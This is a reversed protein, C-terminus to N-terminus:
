KYMTVEKNRYFCLSADEYLRVIREDSKKDLDAIDLPEGYLFRKLDDLQSVQPINYGNEGGCRDAMSDFFVWSEDNHTGCKVFSVYHSTNICVVAFLEMTVKQEETSHHDSPPLSPPAPHHLRKPHNHVSKWCSPCLYAYVNNWGFQCACERCFSNAVAGCIVCSQIADSLIRTINLTPNIIIRKYLKQMGFRPMQLVMVSPIEALQLNASMFSYELLYQISPLPNRVDREAFIQYLHSTEERGNGSRLKVFPDIKLVKEFLLVVFEEPDKEENLFGGIDGLDNLCKRLEMVSQHHVYGNQRLPNVIQEKLIRQVRDYELIDDRRKKRHLAVDFVHAFAYMAFITADMYCSNHHGQVGKKRGVYKPELKTAPLLCGHVSEIEAAVYSPSLPYPVSNFREDPRCTSLKCFFGRGHQCVFFRERQFTGDTGGEIPNELELGALKYPINTPYGTWRIVGYHAKSSIVIQAMSGVQLSSSRDESPYVTPSQQTANYSKEGYNDPQRPLSSYASSRYRESNSTSNVDTLYNTNQNLDKHLVRAPASKHRLRESYLDKTKEEFSEEPYVSVNPASHQRKRDTSNVNLYNSDPNLSKLINKQDTHKFTNTADRINSVPNGSSLVKSTTDVNNQPPDFNVTSFRNDHGLNDIGMEKKLIHISTDYERMQNAREEENMENETPVSGRSSSKNDNLLSDQWRDDGGNQLSHPNSYSRMRESEKKEQHKKWIHEQEEVLDIVEIEPPKIVETKLSSMGNKDLSENLITYPEVIDGASEDFQKEPLLTTPDAYLRKDNPCPFPKPTGAYKINSENQFFKDLKEDMELGAIYKANKNPKNLYRIVGRLIKKKGKDAFVIVRMGVALHSIDIPLNEKTSSKYEKSGNQQNLSPESFMIKHLAVFTGHNEECKFYNMTGDSGNCDGVKNDFKVGFYIGKHRRLRGKYMLIGKPQGHETDVKVQDGVKADTASRLLDRNNMIEMRDICSPVALLMDAHEKSVEQVDQLSVELTHQKNEISVLNVFKTDKPQLDVPLEKYLGGKIAHYDGSIKKAITNFNRELWNKPLVKGIRDNMLIFKTANEDTEAANKQSM